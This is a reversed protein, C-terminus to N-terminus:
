GHRCLPGSPDPGTAQLSRASRGRLSRSCAATLLVALAILLMLHFGLERATASAMAPLGAIWLGTAVRGIWRQGATKGSIASALLMFLAPLAWILYYQRVLPSLVLMALLFLAAEGRGETVELERWPRRTFWILAALLVAKLGWALAICTERSLQLPQYAVRYPHAPWLLRALVSAISQNRRDIFHEPLTPDVMGRAPAGSLNYRAWQVHYELTRQPGFLLLPPLLALCTATTLCAALARWRRKLVLWLVFLLPLLKIVGAAAFLMGARRDRGRELADAGGLLLALVLFSLQNFQAAIIIPPLALACAAVLAALSSARAPATDCWQPAASPGCWGALVRLSYLLCIVHGAAWLLAAPIPGGAALPSILVSLAPLYFPLQRQELPDSSQLVPNLEGHLWVYRADLYFHQFDYKGNMARQLSVVWVTALLAILAAIAAQRRARGLLHEMGRLIPNSAQRTRYSSASEPM